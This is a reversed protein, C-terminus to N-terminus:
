ETNGWTSTESFDLLNATDLCMYFPVVSYREQLAYKLRRQQITTLVWGDKCWLPRLVYKVVDPVGRHAVVYLYEFSRVDMNRRICLQNFPKTIPM